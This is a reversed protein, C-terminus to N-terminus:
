AQRRQDVALAGILKHLQAADCWTFRAVGFMRQSMADAYADDRAPSAAMLLARVKSVQAARNNGPRQRAPKAVGMKKALAYLHRIVAGRGHTDLAAASDVRAVAWLVDRYIEDSLKLDRKLCHIRGLEKNRGMDASM